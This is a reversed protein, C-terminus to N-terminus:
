YRYLRWLARLDAIPTFTRTMPVPLYRIGAAEIVPREPGPASIGCVDYGAAQLSQLQNLLMYRLSMDVTAIHAIKIRSM